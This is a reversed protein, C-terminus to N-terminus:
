STSTQRDPRAPKSELWAWRDPPSALFRARPAAISRRCIREILAMAEPIRLGSADISPLERSAASVRTALSGCLLVAVLLRRSPM